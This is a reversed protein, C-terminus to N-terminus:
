PYAETGGPGGWWAVISCMWAIYM